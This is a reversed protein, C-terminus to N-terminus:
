EQMKKEASRNSAALGLAHTPPGPVTAAAPRHRRDPATGPAAPAASEPAEASSRKAAAARAPAPSNRLPAPLLCQHVMLEVFEHLLELGRRRVIQFGHDQVARRRGLFKVGLM